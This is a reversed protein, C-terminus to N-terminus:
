YEGLLRNTYAPTIPRRRDNITISGTGLGGTLRNFYSSFGGLGRESWTEGHIQYANPKQAIVEGQNIPRDMMGYDQQQAGFDESSPGAQRNAFLTGQAIAHQIQPSQIEGPQSISSPAYGEGGLMGMLGLSAGVGLAIPMVMRKDFASLLGKFNIVSQSAEAVAHRTTRGFGSQAGSLLGQGAHLEQMLTDAAESTARAYVSGSSEVNQTGQRIAKQAVEELLSLTEDMTVQAGPVTVNASVPLAGISLAEGRGFGTDTFIKQMVSRLPGVQGHQSLQEAAEGLQKPLDTFTELKKSKLVIHEQLNHLLASAFTSKTGQPGYNTLSNQLALLRRDLSGTFLEVGAEKYIADMAASDARGLTQGFAAIGTKLEEGMAATMARYQFDEAMHKGGQKFAGRALKAQRRNLFMGTITDGDSDAFAQVGIGVDITQGGVTVRKSPLYVTGGGGGRTFQDLNRIFDDFFATQKGVPQKAIDRFGRIKAGDFHGAIARQGWDSRAMQTFFEDSGGLRTVEGVHRYAQTLMVSGHGVYPHRGSVRYIGRSSQGGGEMATFFRRAKFGLEGAEDVGKRNFLESLFGETSLHVNTGGTTEWLRSVAKHQGSTLFGGSTLDYVGARPAATGRIKGSLLKGYVDSFLKATKEQMTRMGARVDTGESQFRM